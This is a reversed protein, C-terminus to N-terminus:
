STELFHMSFLACLILGIDVNAAARLKYYSGEPNFPFVTSSSESVVLSRENTVTVAHNLIDGEFFLQVGDATRKLVYWNDNMKAIQSFLEDHENYFYVTRRSGIEHGAKCYALLPAGRASGVRLVVIARQTDRARVSHPMVVDVQIIPKGELDQVNLTAMDESMSGELPMVPVALVCENGDPVVLGPCLQKAAVAPLM